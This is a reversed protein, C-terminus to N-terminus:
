LFEFPLHIGPLLLEADIALYLGIIVCLVFLSIFLEIRLRRKTLQAIPVFYTKQEIHNNLAERIKPDEKKSKKAKIAVDALADVAASSMSPADTSSEKKTSKTEAEDSKSDTDAPQESEENALPKITKKPESPTQAAETEEVSSEEVAQDTKPADAMMPDKMLSRGKLIVPRSTASAPSKGPAAVDFVRKTETSPISKEAM